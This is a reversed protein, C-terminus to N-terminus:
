LGYFNGEKKNQNVTKSPFHELELVDFIWLKLKEPYDRSAVVQLHLTFNDLNTTM